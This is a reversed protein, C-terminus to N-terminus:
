KRIFHPMDMPIELSLEVLGAPKGNKQSAFQYILKKVGNKEITYANPAGATTLMKKLKIKSPESHCALLDSGILSLGGYKEFTKASRQNMETIKGTEDCVTVAIPAEKIWDNM